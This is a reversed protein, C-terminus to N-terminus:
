DTIRERLGLEMRAVVLDRDSIVRGAAEFIMEDFFSLGRECFYRVEAGDGLFFDLASEDDVITGTATRIAPRSNHLFLGQQNFFASECLVDQVRIGSQSNNGGLSLHEFDNSRSRLLNMSFVINTLVQVEPLRAAAHFSNM